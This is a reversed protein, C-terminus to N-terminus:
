QLLCSAVRDQGSSGLDTQQRQEQLVLKGAIGTSSCSGITQGRASSRAGCDQAEYPDLPDYPTKEQFPKSISQVAM